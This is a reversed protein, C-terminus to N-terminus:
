FQTYKYLNMLVAPNKTQLHFQMEREEFSNRKMKDYFIAKKEVIKEYSKSM